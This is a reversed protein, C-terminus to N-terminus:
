HPSAPSAMSCEEQDVMLAELRPRRSVNGVRMAELRSRRHVNIAGSGWHNSRPQCSTCRVPLPGGDYSVPLRGFEAYLLVYVTLWVFRAVVSETPRTALVGALAMPTLTVLPM